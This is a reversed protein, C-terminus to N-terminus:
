RFPADPPVEEAWFRSSRHHRPLADLFREGDALTTLTGTRPDPVGELITMTIGERWETKIIEFTAPEGAGHVYIRALLEISGDEPQRRLLNVVRKVTTTV